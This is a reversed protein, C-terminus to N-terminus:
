KIPVIMRPRMQEEVRTECHAALNNQDSAASLPNAGSAYLGKELSFDAYGHAIDSRLRFTGLTRIEEKCKPIHCLGCDAFVHRATGKVLESPNIDQDITGAYSQKFRNRM